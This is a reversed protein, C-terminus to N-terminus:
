KYGLQEEAVLVSCQVSWVRQMRDTLIRQRQKDLKAQRRNSIVLFIAIIIILICVSAGIACSVIVGVDVESGVTEDSVVSFSRDCTFYFM